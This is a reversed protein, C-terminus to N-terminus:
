PGNVMCAHVNMYKQCGETHSNSTIANWPYLIKKLTIIHIGVQQKSHGNYNHKNKYYLGKTGNLVMTDLIINNTHAATGHMGPSPSFMKITKRNSESERQFLIKM